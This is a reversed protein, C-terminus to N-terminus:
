GKGASLDTMKKHLVVAAAVSPDAVPLKCPTSTFEKGASFDTENKHLVAAAAVSSDAAPSQAHLVPVDTARLPGSFIAM